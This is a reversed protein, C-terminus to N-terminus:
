VHNMDIPWTIGFEQKNGCNQCYIVMRDRTLPTGRHFYLKIDETEGGSNFVHIAGCQACQITFKRVDM